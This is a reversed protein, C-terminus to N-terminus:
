RPLLNEHKALDLMAQTNLRIKEAITALAQQQNGGHYEVAAYIVGGANAIFDPISLIGHEDLTRQYTFRGFTVTM